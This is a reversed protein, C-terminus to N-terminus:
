AWVDVLEALILLAILGALAFAARSAYHVIRQKSM